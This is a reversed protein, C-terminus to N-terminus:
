KQCPIFTSLLNNSQEFLISLSDCEFLCVCVGARAWVAKEKFMGNGPLTQLLEEKLCFQKSDVLQM